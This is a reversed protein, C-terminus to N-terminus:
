PASIPSSVLRMIPASRSVCNMPTGHANMNPRRAPEIPGFRATNRPNSTYAKM